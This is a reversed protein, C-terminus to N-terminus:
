KESCQESIQTLQRSLCAVNDPLHLKIVAHSENHFVSLQAYLKGNHGGM